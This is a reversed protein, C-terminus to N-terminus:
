RVGGAAAVMFAAACIALGYPLTLGSQGLSLGALGGGSVLHRRAWILRALAMAGGALTTWIFLEVSGWPSLFAGLAGLAKVDGAGVAGVFFFVAMLGFAVLAGLLSQGLGAWGGAALGWALGWLATLANLPNPIRRCALDYSAMLAALLLFWAAPGSWARGGAVLWPLFLLAPLLGWHAEGLEALM